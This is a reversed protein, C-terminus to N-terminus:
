TPFYQFDLGASSCVLMTQDIATMPMAILMNEALTILCSPPIQSILALNLTAVAASDAAVPMVQVATRGILGWNSQWHAISLVGGMSCYYVFLSAQDVEDQSKERTLALRHLRAM